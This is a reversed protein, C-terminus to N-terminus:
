QTRCRAVHLPIVQRNASAVVAHLVELREFQYKLDGTFLENDFEFESKMAESIVFTISLRYRVSAFVSVETGFPVMAAALDRFVKV